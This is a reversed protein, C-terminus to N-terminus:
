RLRTLHFKRFNFIYNQVNSRVKSDFPHAALDKLEKMM